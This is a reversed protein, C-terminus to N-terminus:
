RRLRRWQGIVHAPVAGVNTWMMCYSEAAPSAFVGAQARTRKVDVPTIIDNGRHTHLNFDVATTAEFQYDIREGAALAFCEEAIRTPGIELRLPRSPADPTTACGAALVALVIFPLSRSFTM